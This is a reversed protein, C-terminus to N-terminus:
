TTLYIFACHGMLITIEDDWRGVVACAFFDGTVSRCRRLKRWFGGSCAYGCIAM